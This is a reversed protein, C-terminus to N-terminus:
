PVSRELLQVFLDSEDGDDGKDVVTAVRLAHLAALSPPLPIRGLRAADKRTTLILDAKAQLATSGVRELDLADFRHHDPFGVSAVVTAGASAVDDFFRGPHAIGAFCAVRTGRLADLPVTVQDTLRVLDRSISRANFIPAAPCHRGVADRIRQLTEPTARDARTVVVADARTMASLPERLPGAPLLRGNGFPDAGDILLLDLDRCIARHQFGDDLVICRAGFSGIALEGGERRRHAVIVPVGALAEALMVPEDGAVVADVLAGEGTSVVTARGTHTGGYGRSVVAPRRGLDRLTRAILEVMPSKGTGGATLNGVSLVPVPLRESRLWGADYLGARAAIAGAYFPTLWSTIM